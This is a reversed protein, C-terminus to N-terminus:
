ISKSKEAAINFDIEEVYESLRKIEINEILEKFSSINGCKGYEDLSEYYELKNDTTITIPLLDGKLLIFNMLLRATRGNGDIFPHIKVFEAHVWSSLEITNMMKKNEKYDEIFYKMNNRVSLYDCPIFSAGLIRVNTDRYLGSVDLINKMLISHIDKILEENLDNKLSAQEKIFEYAEKSNVVEYFEKVSKGKVTINDVLVTKVEMLSYTNGEMATTDHHFRLSFDGEVSKTFEDSIYNSNKNIYNKLKEITWDM